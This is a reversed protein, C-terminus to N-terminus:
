SLFKMWPNQNMLRNQILLLRTVSTVYAVYTAAARTLCLVNRGTNLSLTRLLEEGLTVHRAAAQTVGPAAKLAEAGSNPRPSNLPSVAPAALAPRACPIVHSDGSLSAPRCSCASDGSIQLACSSTCKSWSCVTEPLCPQAWFSGPHRPVKGWSSAEPLSLQQLSHRVRQRHPPIFLLNLIRFRLM